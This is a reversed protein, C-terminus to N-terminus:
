EIAVHNLVECFFFLVFLCVFLSELVQKEFKQLSFSLTIEPSAVFVYLRIATHIWMSKANLLVHLETTPKM